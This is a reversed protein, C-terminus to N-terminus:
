RCLWFLVLAGVVAFPAFPLIVMAPVSLFGMVVATEAHGAWDITKMLKIATNLM